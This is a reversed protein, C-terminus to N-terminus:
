EWRFEEAVLNRADSDKADAGFFDFAVFQGEFGNLSQLFSSM